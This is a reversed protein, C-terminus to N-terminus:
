GLSAWDLGGTWNIGNLDSPAAHSVHHDLFDLDLCLDAELKFVDYDGEAGDGWPFNVIRRAQRHMLGIHKSLELLDDEIGARILGYVLLIGLGRCGDGRREHVVLFKDFLLYKGFLEDYMQMMVGICSVTCVFDTLQTLSAIQVLSDSWILPGAKVERPNKKRACDKKYLHEWRPITIGVEGGPEFIEAHNYHLVSPFKRRLVVCVEHWWVYLDDTETWDGMDSESDDVILWDGLLHRIRWGCTMLLVCFPSFLGPNFCLVVRIFTNEPQTIAAWM